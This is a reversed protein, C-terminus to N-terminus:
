FLNLRFYDILSVGEADIRMNVQWNELGKGTASRAASLIRKNHSGAKPASFPSADYMYCLLMVARSEKRISGSLDSFHKILRDFSDFRSHTATKVNGGAPLSILPMKVEVYTDGILFDIRSGGLKVERQVNGKAIGPIMGRELFFEVYDNVRTQNIGIWSKEKGGPPDLSIAEVTCRTKRAAGETRSLLCPVESFSIEGIRGTAPCHCKAVSGGTEVLMLFRNPRSKVVGEILRERFRYKPRM